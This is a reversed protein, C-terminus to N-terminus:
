GGDIGKSLVVIAKAKKVRALELDALNLGSGKL